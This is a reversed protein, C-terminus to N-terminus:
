RRRGEHEHHRHSRHMFLHIIPCAALLLYPLAGLLHQRHDTWFFLLTVVLFACLGLWRWSMELRQKRITEM